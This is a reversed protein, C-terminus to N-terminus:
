VVLLTGDFGTATWAPVNENYTTKKTRLYAIAVQEGLKFSETADSRWHVGAINRGVGVNAALKNLEGGVTLPPGSYPLLNLGAADPVVPNPLIYDENFYFKLLTVCAGAVTAHGANYAPHIPSGEPFAQPLLWTGTAVRTAAVASSALIDPHM